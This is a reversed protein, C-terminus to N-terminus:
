PRMPLALHSGCRRLVEEASELDGSSIHKRLVEDAHVLSKEHPWVMLVDHGDM